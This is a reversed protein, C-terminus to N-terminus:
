PTDGNKVSPKTLERAAQGPKTQNAILGGVVSGALPMGLMAGIGTAGLIIGTPVTAESMNEASGYYALKHRLLGRYDRLWQVLRGAQDDDVSEGPRPLGELLATIKGTFEDVFTLVEDRLEPELHNMGRVHDKFTGLQDLLGAAAVALADRNVAVRQKMASKADASVPEPDAAPGTGSAGDRYGEWIERIVPNVVEPGADWTEPTIETVIKELMKQTRAADGLLPRGDLLADYWDMWFQWDRADPTEAVRAKVKAWQEELPGRGWPWLPLADPLGGDAAQDADARIAKWIPHTNAAPDTKAATNAVHLAYAYAEAYADAYAPKAAATRIEETPGAVAVSSILVSRLVPLATLDGERAWDETLVAEWFVPLVRVAARSAIWVAVERPQGELWAELSNTDQIDAIKRM